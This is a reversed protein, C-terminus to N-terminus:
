YEQLIDMLVDKIEVPEFFINRSLEDNFRKLLETKKAKQAEKDDKLLGLEVQLEKKYASIIEYRKAEKTQVESGANNRLTFYAAVAFFVVFILTYITQFDMM